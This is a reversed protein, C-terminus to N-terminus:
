LLCEYFYSSRGELVCNPLQHKDEADVNITVLLITNLMKDNIVIHKLIIRIWYWWLIRGGSRMTSVLRSVASLSRAFIASHHMKARKETLVQLNKRLIAVFTRFTKYRQAM